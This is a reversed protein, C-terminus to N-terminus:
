NGSALRAPKNSRSRPPAPEHRCPPPQHPPRKNCSVWVKETVWRGPEKEISIWQGPVWKHRSNYHGPNWVREYVPPVWVKRTEWYGNKHRPNKYEPQSQPKQGRYNMVESENRVPERLEAPEYQSTDSKHNMVLRVDAAISGQRDNALATGSVMLMTTVSALVTIMAKKM